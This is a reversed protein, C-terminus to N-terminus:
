AQEGLWSILRDCFDRVAADGGRKSLILRAAALVEPHADAVAVPLGAMRMCELDNVDNGVYAIFEPSIHNARLYEKLVKAKDLVGQLSTLGLKKCRAEVVPNAETSIVVIPVGADRLRSIGLGDARNCRVSERGTEDVDVKNDTMVGDFDLVVLDIRAPWSAIAAYEPRRMLWELLELDEPTDLQLSSWYDMEHVLISGGLRAGERRLVWPRFVYISGNERYQLAMDQERLRTRFDYNLPVPEADVRWLLGRDRCASLLSDAGSQLLSNIATDIDAARRIPSTCQLFVVVDPDVAGRHIRDDLVHLLASESTAEDSALPPPRRVVDAGFTVSVEKVEEDDTSVIVETVLRSERAQRITHAILPLGALTM